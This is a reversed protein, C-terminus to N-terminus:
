KWRRALTSVGPKPIRGHPPHVAEFFVALDSAMFDNLRRESFSGRLGHSDADDRIQVRVHFSKRSQRVFVVLQPYEAIEHIVARVRGLYDVEHAGACRHDNAAVVIVGHSKASFASARRSKACHRLRSPIVSGRHERRCVLLKKPVKWSACRTLYVTLREEKAVRSWRVEEVLVSRRIRRQPFAVLLGARSRINNERPWVWRCNARRSTLRVTTLGPLRPCDLAPSGRARSAIQCSPLM